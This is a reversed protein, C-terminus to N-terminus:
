LCLLVLSRFVLRFDSPAALVLLSWTNGMLYGKFQVCAVIGSPHTGENPSPLHM